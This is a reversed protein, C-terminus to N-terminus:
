WAAIVKSKAKSKKKTEAVIDKADKLKQMKDKYDQHLKLLKELYDASIDKNLSSINRTESVKEFADNQQRFEKFEELFEELDIQECAVEEKDADAIEKLTYETMKVNDGQLEWETIKLVHTATYKRGTEINGMFRETLADGWIINKDLIYVYTKLALESPEIGLDKYTDKIVGLMRAKSEEVNDLQIDIGYTSSLAVFVNREFTELDNKATELKRRLIEVLFNGNGCAPELFTSDIRYSEEKVLDLMDVVINHPTFVEGFEAVRAKSKIGGDTM